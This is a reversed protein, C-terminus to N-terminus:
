LRQEEPDEEQVAAPCAHPAEDQREQGGGGALPVCVRHRAAPPHAEPGRCDGRRLAQGTTEDKRPGQPTAASGIQLSAAGIRLVCWM